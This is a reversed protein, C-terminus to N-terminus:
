KAEVLFTSLGAALKDRVEAKSAAVASRFFPTPKIRGRRTGYIPHNPGTREQTGFEWWYPNWSRHAGGLKKLGAKQSMGVVVRPQKPKGRMISVQADLMERSARNISSPDDVGTSIRLAAINKRVASWIIKAADVYTEKIEEAMSRDIRAEINAIVDEMGEVKMLQRKTVSQKVTKRAM